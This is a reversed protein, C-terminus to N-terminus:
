KRHHASLHSTVKGFTGVFTVDSKTKDVLWENFDKFDKPSGINKVKYGKELYKKEIKEAAKIGPEDNDLCLYITTIGDRESLYRELPKDDTMGLALLHDSTLGTVDYFSMLDIAGEFVRITNSKEASLSFGYNKDSGAVDCKFPKGAGDHIGRQFALKPIGKADRCIFVLNHHTAEEYILGDSLFKEVTQPKLGREKVLYSIVRLNNSAPPPLTFVRSKDEMKVSESRHYLSSPSVGRERDYGIFDLLWEVAEKFEMGEFRQLFDIQTGGSQDSWRYWTRRDYIRMSDMEKLTHCNGVRIVHYGFRAAVECLDASKALSLEQETLKGM